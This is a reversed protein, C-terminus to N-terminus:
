PNEFLKEKGKDNGGIPNREKNNLVVATAEKAKVRDQASTSM